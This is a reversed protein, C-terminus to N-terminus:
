PAIYFTMSYRTSGAYADEGYFPLVNAAAVRGAVHFSGAALDVDQSAGPVLTLRTSIPGDFFVSLEYSTSNKVTMTTRGSAVPGGATSRQAPPMPAYTGGRIKAIEDRVTPETASNTPDAPFLAANPVTSAAGALRMAVVSIGATEENLRTVFLRWAPRSTDAFFVQNINVAHEDPQYPLNLVAQVSKVMGEYGAEFGFILKGNTRDLLADTAHFMCALTWVSGVAPTPAPTKLLVCKEADLLRFSTKWQRSDPASLDFDGRISAFPDPEEAARLATLVGDRFQDRREKALRDMAARRASEAQRDAAAREVARVNAEAAEQQAKFSAVESDWQEVRRLASRCQTEIGEYVEKVSPFTRAHGNFQDVFEKGAVNLKFKRPNAAYQFSYQEGLFDKCSIGFDHGPQAPEHYSVVLGSVSLEAHIQKGGPARQGQVVPYITGVPDATVERGTVATLAARAVSERQVETELRQQLRAFCEKLIAAQVQGLNKDETTDADLFDGFSDLHLRGEHHSASAAFVACGMHFNHRGAYAVELDAVAITGKEGGPRTLPYTAAEVRLSCVAGFIIVACVPSLLSRNM